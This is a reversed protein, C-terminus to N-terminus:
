NNTQLVLIKDQEPVPQDDQMLDDEVERGDLVQSQDNLLSNLLNTASIDNYIHSDAKNRLHALNLLVFALERCRPLSGPRLTATDLRM